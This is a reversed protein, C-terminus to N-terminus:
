DAKKSLTYTASSYSPAYLTFTIRDDDIPIIKALRGNFVCGSGCFISDNYYLYSSRFDFTGSQADVAYGANESGTVLNWSNGEKTFIVNIGTKSNTGRWEGNLLSPFNRASVIREKFNYDTANKYLLLGSYIDKVNITESNELMFTSPMIKTSGVNKLYYEQSMNDLSLFYYKKADNSEDLLPKFHTYAKLDDGSDFYIKGIQILLALANPNDVAKTLYSNAEDYDGLDYQNKGQRYYSELILDRSDKYWMISEFISLAEEFDENELHDVASIYSIETLYNQSDKHFGLGEFLSKAKEYNENNFENVAIAYDIDKRFVWTIGLAGVGLFLVILLIAYVRAKNKKKKTLPKTDSKNKNLKIEDHRVIDPKQQIIGQNVPHEPEVLKGSEYQIVSTKELLFDQNVEDLKVEPLTKEEIEVTPNALSKEEKIPSVLSGKDHESIKIKELATRFEKASRFRNEPLFEVAKKVAKEFEGDGSIPFPIEDGKIRKALAEERQKYMVQSSELFPLKGGNLYRYLVLGLSYIDVTADYQEGKYVEPAMYLYTGKKSLASFTKEMRRAVGFDGLKFDGHQSVFINDPKIDRHLINKKHCAELAKCLDMGLKLLESKSLPNTRSYRTIDQLLEMKILVDYSIGDSNEYVKYDDINVINSLGRFSYLLDVEEVLGKVIENFYKKISDKDMGESYLELIENEQFPISIIKVAAYYDNKNISRKIRYVQGFSGEGIKEDISWEGWLPEYKYIKEM